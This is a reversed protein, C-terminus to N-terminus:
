TTANIEQLECELNRILQKFGAEFLENSSIEAHYQRVMLGFNQEDLELEALHTLSFLSRTSRVTLEAQVLSIAGTCFLWSNIALRRGDMGQKQLTRGVPMTVRLWGASTHGEGGLAKFIM